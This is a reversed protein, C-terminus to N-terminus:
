SAIRKKMSASKSIISSFGDLALGRLGPLTYPYVKATVYPHVQKTWRRIWPAETGLFEYKELGEEFACKVTEHVLLIGPACRQWEESYGLKLIWLGNFDQIALIAAIAKSDCRLIYIRIIGRLAAVRAYTLFFHKLKEDFMLASRERGKWSAAEVCIFEDLHREITEPRPVIIEFTIKGHTELLKKKRRLENRYDSSMGAEFKDWTTNISIFPAGKDVSLFTMGARSQQLITIETADKGLRGLSLPKGMRIVAGVLEKLSNENKYIFGSPEFTASAGLLELRAIGNNNLFILPAIAALGSQTRNVVIRLQGPFCLTDACASIWDYQLLPTKFSKALENWGDAITKLGASDDIIEIM